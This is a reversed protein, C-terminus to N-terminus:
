CFEAPNSSLVAYDENSSQPRGTYAEAYLAAGQQPNNAADLIAYRCRGLGGPLSVAAHAPHSLGVWGAFGM